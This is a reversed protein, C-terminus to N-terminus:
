SVSLVVLTHVKDPLVFSPSGKMIFGFVVVRNSLTNAHFNCISFITLKVLVVNIMMLYLM